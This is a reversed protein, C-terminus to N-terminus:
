SLPVAPYHRNLWRVDEALHDVGFAKETSHTMVFSFHIIVLSFPPAM